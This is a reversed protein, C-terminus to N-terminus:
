NEFEAPCMRTIRRIRDALQQQEQVSTDRWDAHKHAECTHFVQGSVRSLSPAGCVVCQNLTRECLSKVKLYLAHNGGEYFVHLVGRQERIKQVRIDTCESDAMAQFVQELTPVWGPPCELGVHKKSIFERNQELVDALCSHAEFLITM